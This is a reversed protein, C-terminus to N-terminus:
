PSQIYTLYSDQCYITKVYEKGLQSSAWQEVDLEWQQKKVQIYTEWSAPLTTQYEQREFFKGCNM